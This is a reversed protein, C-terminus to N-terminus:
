KAHNIEFELKYNKEKTLLLMSGYVQRLNPVPKHLYVLIDGCATENDALDPPVADPNPDPDNNVGLVPRGTAFCRTQYEVGNRVFIYGKDKDYSQLLWQDRSQNCSTLILLLPLTYDLLTRKM